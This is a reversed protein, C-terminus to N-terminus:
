PAVQWTMLGPQVGPANLTCMLITENGARDHGSKRLGVTGCGEGVNPFDPSSHAAPVSLLLAGAALAGVALGRAISKM